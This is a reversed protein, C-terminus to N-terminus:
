SSPFLTPNEPIAPPFAHAELLSPREPGPMRLTAGQALAVFVAENRNHVGLRQYLAEIHGKTTAMSINLQRCILKIPYGQALLLLVEYQRASLGLMKAEDIELKLASNKQMNFGSRPSPPYTGPSISAPTYGSLSPPHSRSIINKCHSLSRISSLIAEAASSTSIYGVVIAPLSGWSPPIATTESLLVIRKPAHIRRAAQILLNIREEPHAGLLVIDAPASHPASQYLDDYNQCKIRDPSTLYGMLTSLGLRLLPHPEIIVIHVM